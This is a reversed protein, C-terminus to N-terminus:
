MCMGGVEKDPIQGRNFVLVARMARLAIMFLPFVVAM